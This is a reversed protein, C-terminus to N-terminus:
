LLRDEDALSPLLDLIDSCRRADDQLIDEALLYEESEPDLYILVPSFILICEISEERLLLGHLFFKYKCEDTSNEKYNGNYWVPTIHKLTRSERM